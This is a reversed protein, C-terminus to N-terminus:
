VLGERKLEARIIQQELIGLTSSTLFYLLLGASFNYFIFGFAVMVFSMIKQQQAMQPDAPRPMMRQSILTVIVYLIPLLNFSTFFWFGGGPIDFLRDPQTLDPIYLFPTHRLELALSFTNILGIWIPLQLFMLLCGGMMQAPNVNHERMLKQLERNAKLADNKYRERIEVMQPQIKAMKKQQRMMVAQNRKSIPHLCVRVIITLCVIAIGYSGTVSQFFSLLVLFLRVLMGLRGYYILEDYGQEEYSALLRRDKPGLFVEYRHVVGPELEAEFGVQFPLPQIGREPLESAGPPDQTVGRVILQAAPTDTQALLPRIVCAFYNSELGSWLVRQSRAEFRLETELVRIDKREVRALRWDPGAYAVVQYNLERSGEEFRIREPGLLQYRLPPVTSWGGQFSLQVQLLYGEAPLEYRKEVARGDPLAIRYVVVREGQEILEWHRRALEAPLDPGGLVFAPGSLRAPAILELESAHDDDRYGPIDVRLLSAGLSQTEIRLVDNHLSAQSSPHAPLSPDLSSSADGSAMGSTPDASSAGVGAGSSTGMGSTGAAGGSETASPPASSRPPPPPQLWELVKMYSIAILFCVVITILFRRDM